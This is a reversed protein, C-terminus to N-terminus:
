EYEGEEVDAGLYMDAERLFRKGQEVAWLYDEKTPKNEATMPLRWMICKERWEEIKKRSISDMSEPINLDWLHDAAANFWMEWQTKFPSDAFVKFTPDYKPREAHMLFMGICYTYGKGFKSM